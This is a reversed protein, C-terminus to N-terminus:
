TALPPARSPPLHCRQQPAQHVSWARVTSVLSAAPLRLSVPPPGVPNALEFACVLCTSAVDTAAIAATPAEDRETGDSWPMALCACAMALAATPPEAVESAEAHRHCGPLVLRVCLALIAAWLAWRNWTTQRVLV